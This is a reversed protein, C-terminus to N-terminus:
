QLYTCLQIESSQAPRAKQGHRRGTDTDTHEHLRTANTYTRVKCALPQEAFLVIVNYIHNQSRNAPTGTTSTRCPIRTRPERYTCTRASDYETRYARRELARVPTVISRLGQSGLVEAARAACKVPDEGTSSSSSREKSLRVLYPLDLDRNHSTFPLVASVPSTRPALHSDHSPTLFHRRTAVRRLYRDACALPVSHYRESM